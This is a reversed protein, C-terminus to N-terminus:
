FMNSLLVTGSFSKADHHAKCWKADHHAKCWKPIEELMFYAVKKFAVYQKCQTDDMVNWIGEPFRKCVWPFGGNKMPFSVMEITMKLLLSNTM